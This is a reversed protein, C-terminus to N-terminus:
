DTRSGCLTNNEQSHTLNGSTIQKGDLSLYISGFQVSAVRSQDYNPSFFQLRKRNLVVSRVIGLTVVFNEWDCLAILRHCLTKLHSFDPIMGHFGIEEWCLEQPKSDQFYIKFRNERYQKRELHTKIPVASSIPVRHIKIGPNKRFNMLLDELEETYELCVVHDPKLLDVAQFQFERAPKGLVFGSSDLIVRIAGLHIAKETLKKLGSLTQLLHGLPSTSGVFYLCVRREGQGIGAYFELGLTTPPGIVSQGPDGDIYATCFKDTLNEHLFRCFTTKGSDTPGLVYILKKESKRGFESLLSPWREDIITM